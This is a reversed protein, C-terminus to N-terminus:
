SDLYDYWTQDANRTRRESVRVIAVYQGDKFQWQWEAIVYDHAIKELKEALEWATDVVISHFEM